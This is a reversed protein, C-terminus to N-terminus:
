WSLLMGIWRHRHPCTASICFPVLPVLAALTFKKWTTYFNQHLIYYLTTYFFKLHKKCCSSVLLTQTLSQKMSNGPTKFHKNFKKINFKEWIACKWYCQIQRSDRVKPTFKETRFFALTFRNVKQLEAHSMCFTVHRM